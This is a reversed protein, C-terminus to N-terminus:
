VQRLGVGVGVGAGLVVFAVCMGLVVLGGRWGGAGGGLWGTSAEGVVRWADM